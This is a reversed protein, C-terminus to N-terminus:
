KRDGFGKKTVTKGKRERKRDGIVRRQSRNFGVIEVM